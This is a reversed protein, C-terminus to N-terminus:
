GGPASLRVDFDTRQTQGALHQRGPAAAVSPPPPLPAAGMLALQGSAPARAHRCHVSPRPDMWGGMWEDMWRDMWETMSPDPAYNLHQESKGGARARERWARIAGVEGWGGPSMRTGGVQSEASHKEVEPTMGRIGILM